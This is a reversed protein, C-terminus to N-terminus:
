ATAQPLAPDKIWQTLGPISGEYEPISTPSKVWQAVIPIGQYNNRYSMYKSEKKSKKKFHVSVIEYM